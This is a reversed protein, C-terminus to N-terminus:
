SIPSSPLLQDIMSFSKGTLQPSSHVTQAKPDVNEAGLFRELSGNESNM